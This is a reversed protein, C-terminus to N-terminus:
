TSSGQRAHAQGVDGAPLRGPHPVGQFAQCDDWSVTEVPNKAGTFHSPNNGMVAEWQEQTVEYKGLYFPETIAVKHVPKELDRGSKDDGMKFEGAPILVMEMTVGGGLDVTLKKPPEKTKGGAEKSEQATALTLGGLATLLVFAVTSVQRLM